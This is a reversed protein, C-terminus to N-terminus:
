EESNDLELDQVNVARIKEYGAGPLIYFNKVKEVADQASEATTFSRYVIFGKKDTATVRYMKELEM